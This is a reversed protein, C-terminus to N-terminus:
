TNQDELFELLESNVDELVRMDRPTVEDTNDDAGIILLKFLQHAGLFFSVRMAERQIPPADEPILAKEVREWSAEILKKQSPVILGAVKGLAM